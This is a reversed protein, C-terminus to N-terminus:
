AHDEGKFIAPVLVYGKHTKKAQSVAQKQTFPTHPQDPHSVNQLMTSSLTEEVGSTDVQQLQSIFDVIDTLQPLLSDIQSESLDLKALSALRKIEETTFGTKTAM